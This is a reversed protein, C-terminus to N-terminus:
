ISSIVGSTRFIFQHWLRSRDVSVHDDRVYEFPNREVATPSWGLLANIVDEMVDDLAEAAAQGRTDVANSVAVVVAFEETLMQMTEDFTDPATAEGNSRFVFACPLAMQAAELEASFEAAGAVRGGLTTSVAKLQDIIPQVKL